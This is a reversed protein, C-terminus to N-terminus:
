FLKCKWFLGSWSIAWLRSWLRAPLWRLTYERHPFIVLYVKKKKWCLINTLSFSDVNEFLSSANPEFPVHLLGVCAFSVTQSAICNLPPWLLCFKLINSKANKHEAGYLGHHFTIFQWPHTQPWMDARSCISGYDETGQVYFLLRSSM